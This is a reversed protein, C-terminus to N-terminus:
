ILGITKYIKLITYIIRSFLIIKTFTLYIFFQIPQRNHHRLKLYTDM